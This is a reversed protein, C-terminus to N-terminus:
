KKVPLFSLTAQSVSVKKVAKSAKVTPKTVKSAKPALVTPKTAAKAVNASHRQTHKHNCFAQQNNTGWRCPTCTWRNEYWNWALIGAEYKKFREKHKGSDNHRNLVFQSNCSVSCLACYYIELAHIKAESVAHSIKIADRNNLRYLEDSKRKVESNNLRYQKTYLRKNEARVADLHELEEATLDFNAKLSENLSNHTCAGKYEVADLDWACCSIMGGYDKTKHELAWFTSTFLSEPAVFLLRFMPVNAASPISTWVLLGKHTIRDGDDIAAKVRVPMTAFYTGRDQYGDYQAWRKKVGGTADTASGCYIITWYGHKKLVLIYGSWRNLCYAPLAEFWSVLPPALAQVADLM